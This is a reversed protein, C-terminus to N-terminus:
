RLREWAGRPLDRQRRICAKEDHKFRQRQWRKAKWEEKAAVCSRSKHAACYAQWDGILPHARPSHIRSFVCFSKSDHLFNDRDCDSQRCQDSCASGRGEGGAGIVGIARLGARTRADLRLALERNVVDSHRRFARPSGPKKTAQTPSAASHKPPASKGPKYVHRVCSTSSSSRFHSASCRRSDRRRM